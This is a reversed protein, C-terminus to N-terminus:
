SRDAKSELSKLRRPTILDVNKQDVANCPRSQVKRTSVTLSVGGLGRHNIVVSRWGKKTLAAVAYKIYGTDSDSTLGPVIVITPTKPADPGAWDLGVSGGDRQIVVERFLGLVVLIDFKVSRSTPQQCDQQREGAQHKNVTIPLDNLARDLGVSGGDRQIVM